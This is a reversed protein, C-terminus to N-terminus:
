KDMLSDIKASYDKFASRVNTKYENRSSGSLMSNNRGNRENSLIRDKFNISPRERSKVKEIYNNQPNINATSKSQIINTSMYNNNARPTTKQSYKNGSVQSM